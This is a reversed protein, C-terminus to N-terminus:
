KAVRIRMTALDLYRIKGGSGSDRTCAYKVADIANKGHDMSSIAFDRGSGDAWHSGSIPSTRYFGEEDVFCLSVKGDSVIFGGCSPIGFSCQAGLEFGKVFQEIEENSGCLAFTFSKNHYFKVVDDSMITKSVTCRGDSAIIKGDYALTTM